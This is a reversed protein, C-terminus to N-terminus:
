LGSTIPEIGMRAVFLPKRIKEPLRKQKPWPRPLGDQETETPKWKNKAYFKCDEGPFM